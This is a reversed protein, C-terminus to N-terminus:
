AADRLRRRPRPAALRGGLELRRDLERLLPLGLEAELRARAPRRDEVVRALARLDAALREPGRRPRAPRGLLRRFPSALRFRRV